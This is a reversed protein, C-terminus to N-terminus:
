DEGSIVETPSLIGIRKYNERVNISETMIITKLKVIHRFNYSVIYDLNNVAAVAIHLADIPYKAPIVGENIYLSALRQAENSVPLVIVSDRVEYLM